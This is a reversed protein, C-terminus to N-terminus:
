WHASFYIGVVKGACKSKLDVKNGQKDHVNNQFIAEVGSM